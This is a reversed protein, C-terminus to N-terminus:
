SIRLTLVDRLKDRWHAIKFYRLRRHRKRPSPTAPQVRQASDIMYQREKELLSDDNGNPQPQIIFPLAAKPSLPALDCPWDALGKLPQNQTRLFQAGKRSLSYGTALYANEALPVLTITPSWRQHGFKYALARHHDLQIFDAAKYCRENYFEHFHATLHADDELIVAGEHGDDLIRQYARQHSLACACEGDSADRGLRARIATRDVRKEQDAPLGSRGDVADIFTPKVGFGACQAEMRARRDKSSALNIIYLPWAPLEKSYASLPVKKRWM